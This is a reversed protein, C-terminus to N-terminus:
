FVIKFFRVFSLTRGEGVTHQLAGVREGSCGSHRGVEPDFRPAVVLGWMLYWCLKIEKRKQPPPLFYINSSLFEFVKEPIEPTLAPEGSQLHM